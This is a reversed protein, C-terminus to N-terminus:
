EAPVQTAAVSISITVDLGVTSGSVFDGQGIGYDTRDVTVSGEARVGDGDDKLTFPLTIKNNTGRMTLDADMEFSQDGTRRFATSKLVSKPFEDTAFWEDGKLSSDRTGDGTDASKMDITVSVNSTALAEADFSIEADWDAFTGPVTSGFVTAEFGLTSEDKDVVWQGAMAGHAFLVLGLAMAGAASMLRTISAITM